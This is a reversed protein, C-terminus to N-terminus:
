SAGGRRCVYNVLHYLYSIVWLLSIIVGHSKYFVKLDLAIYRNLDDQYKFELAKAACIEQILRLEFITAEAINSPMVNGEM